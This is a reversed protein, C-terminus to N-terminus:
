CAKAVGSGAAFTACTTFATLAGREERAAATNNARNVDSRMVGPGVGAWVSATAYMYLEDGQEAGSAGGDLDPLCQLGLAQDGPHQGVPLPDAAPRLAVGDVDPGDVAVEDLRGDAGGCQGAPHAAGVEEEDGGGDDM